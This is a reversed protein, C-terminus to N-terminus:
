RLRSPRPMKIPWRVRRSQAEVIIDQLATSKLPWNCATFSACSVLYRGTGLQAERKGVKMIYQPLHSFISFYPSFGIM